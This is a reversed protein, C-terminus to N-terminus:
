RAIPTAPVAQDGMRLQAQLTVLHDYWQEQVQEIPGIAAEFERLSGDGRILRRYAQAYQGDRYHFLFHSLSWYEIYYTNLYRGGIPPGSGDIVKRLAILQGAGLDRQLSGSLPLNDLRWIPYAQPDIRGPLLQANDLRSSGFYTALGENIWKAKAVPTGAIREANLQHTAEHLMWHYPNDTDVAYYAHCYPKRYFAEAWPMSTNYDSFQTKNRYLILKLREADAPAVPLEFFRDYARYLAEVATAVQVTQRAPATSFIAYHDTRFEQAGPPIRVTAPAAAAPAPAKAAAPAAPERPGCASCVALALLMCVAM